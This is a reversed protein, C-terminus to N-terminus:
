RLPKQFKLLFKDSKGKLDSVKATHPDDPNHLVDSSGILKFGVGTVEAKVLAPDIRHLTDTDRAGSGADAAHDEVIFIGGPKLAEYIVKDFAQMDPAGFMQNHLDHYNESTWVLDLGAPLTLASAPESTATINACAPAAASAPGPADPPPPGRPAVTPTISVTYVHGQAGVIRCFLATFYGRGPMLEGIREGPKIGAFAIVNAPKRLPDRQRDAQPRSDDAVAAAIYGPIPTADDPAGATAAGALRAVVVSITVASGLALRLGISHIQRM